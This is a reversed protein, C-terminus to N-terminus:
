RQQVFRYEKGCNLCKLFCRDATEGMLSIRRGCIDCRRLILHGSRTQAVGSAEGPLLGSQVENRMDAMSHLIRGEVTEGGSM